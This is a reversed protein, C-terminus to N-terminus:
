KPKKNAGHKLVFFQWSCRTRLRAVRRLEIHAGSGRTNNKSQHRVCRVRFNTELTFRTEPCVYKDLSSMEEIECYKGHAYGASRRGM